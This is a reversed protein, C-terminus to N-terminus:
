HGNHSLPSWSSWFNGANVQKDVVVKAYDDNINQLPYGLVDDKDFFNIWEGTLQPYHSSLQPAPINIPQGFDKYSIAWLPIQTALTYFLNLTECKELPTNGISVIPQSNNGQLDWVYHSAIVAGLSHGIICLPAKEGAENALSKLTQSFVEHIGRNVENDGPNSYAIADGM